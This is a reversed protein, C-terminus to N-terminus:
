TSILAAVRSGGAAGAAPQRHRAPAPACASWAGPGARQIWKTGEDCEAWGCSRAASSVRRCGTPATPRSPASTSVDPARRLEAARLDREGARAARRRENPGLQVANVAEANANNINGRRARWARSISTRCRTTRTRRRRRRHVGRGRGRSSRRPLRTSPREGDIRREHQQPGALAYWALGGVVILSSRVSCRCCGARDASSAGASGAAHGRVTRARESRATRYAHDNPRHSHRATAAVARRRRASARDSSDPASAALRREARGHLGAELKLFADRSANIDGETPTYDTRAARERAAHFEALANAQELSLFHRQRLERILM